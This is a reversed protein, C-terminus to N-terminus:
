PLFKWFFLMNELKRVPYLNFQSLFQIMCKQMKMAILLFQIWNLDKTVNSIEENKILRAFNYHSSFSSISIFVFKICSLVEIMCKDEQSQLYPYKFLDEVCNLFYSVEVPYRNIHKYYCYGTLSAVLAAQQRIRIIQHVASRRQIGGILAYCHMALTISM